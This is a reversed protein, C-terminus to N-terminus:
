TMPLILNNYRTKRTGMEVTKNVKEKKLKLGNHISLIAMDDINRNYSIDLERLKTINKMLALVAVGKSTICACGQVSITEIIYKRPQKRGGIGQFQTEKSGWGVTMLEEVFLRQTRSATM